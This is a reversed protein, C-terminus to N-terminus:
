LFAISSQDQCSAALSIATTLSSGTTLLPHFLLHDFRWGSTPVSAKGLKAASDAFIVGKDRLRMKPFQSKSFRSYMAAAIELLLKQCFSSRLRKESPLRCLLPDMRQYISGRLAIHPVGALAILILQL